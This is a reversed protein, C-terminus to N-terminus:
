AGIVIAGQHAMLTMSRNLLGTWGESGPKLILTGAYGEQRAGRWRPLPQDEFRCHFVGAERWFRFCIRAPPRTEVCLASGCQSAGGRLAPGRAWRGDPEEEGARHAPECEPVAPAIPTVRSAERSRGPRQHTPHSAQHWDLAGRPPCIGRVLASRISPAHRTRAAPM